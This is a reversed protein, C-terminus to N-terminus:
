LRVKSFKVNIIEKRSLIPWKELKCDYLSKEIFKKRNKDRYIKRYVRM